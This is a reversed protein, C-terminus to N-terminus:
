AQGGGQSLCSPDIGAEALALAWKGGLDESFVLGEDADTVLWSNAAIEKELQGPGWGAYGVALMVNKPHDDSVLSELIDKTSTLSLTDSIILSSEPKFYDSSHLVFGRDIDVPGGNLVPADAVRVDGTIGVRELLDSIFLGAKGKNVIIGMAGSRDHSVVYVVAFRFRSDGMAPTALLFSNKLSVPKPDTQDMITTM